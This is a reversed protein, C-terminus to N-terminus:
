NVSAYPTTLCSPIPLWAMFIAEQLVLWSHLYYHEYMYIDNASTYTSKRRGGGKIEESRSEKM